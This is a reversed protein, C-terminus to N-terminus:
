FWDQNGVRKVPQASGQLRTLVSVRNKFHDINIYCGWLHRVGGNLDFSRRGHLIRRNNFIVLDGPKLQYELIHPSFKVAKAFAEYAAYYPMVDEQKVALPGEFAPAWNVGVIEDYHNLVIHPRQCKMEVPYDRDYHVKQFTAPVMTLTTFHDPHTERFEEAVQFVDLFRSEGGTVCEDLRLCHLFQLGPPSEYYVLDMHFDLEVNSYAVNIPKPTSIVDFAQGYILHQVPGIYEAVKEIMSKDTPVGKLLSLGAENIQRLWRLVMTDDKIMDNYHVEPLTKVPKDLRGAERRRRLSDTEYCNQHLYNLPITGTHGDEGKWQIELDTETVSIHSITIQHPLTAPDTLRQTSHCQRCVSCHCNHRLWISHFRSKSGDRWTATITGGEPDLSFGEGTVNSLPSTDQASASGASTCHAPFPAHCQQSYKKHLVESQLNVRVVLRRFSSSSIGRANLSKSFCALQRPIVRGLGLRFAM